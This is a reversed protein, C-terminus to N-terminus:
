TPEKTALAAIDERACQRIKEVMCVICTHSQNTCDGDHVPRADVEAAMRAFNEAPYEWERLAIVAAVRDVTAEDESLARVYALCAAQLRDAHNSRSLEDSRYVLNAKALPTM